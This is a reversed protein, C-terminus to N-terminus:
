GGHAELFRRLADADDGLPAAVQGLGRVTGRRAAIRVAATHDLSASLLDSLERRLDDAASGPPQISGFTGALGDIAEEAESVVVSLYASTAKDRDAVTAALRVTEVQSLVSKATTAAKGEYKGLTRAPGVPHSVCGAGTVAATLVCVLSLM